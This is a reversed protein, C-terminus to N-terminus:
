AHSYSTGKNTKTCKDDFKDYDDKATQWVHMHVPQGIHQATFVFEDTIKKKKREFPTEIRLSLKM